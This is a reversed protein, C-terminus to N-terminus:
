RGGGPAPPAAGGPKDEKVEFRRGDVFLMRVKTGEKFIDGASLVLNAIKGPEISGLQGDVGLFRAPHVTLAKLAEDEALGAQVAKRVQAMLDAGKELGYSTLAFPIGAAKLRAANGPYTEKEATEKAEKGRQAYISLAPPAFNVSLLLPIGAARLADAVRWAENAGAVLGRVGCGAILRLAKKIEEQGDCAFIVPAGDLLYPSLSELFPDYVPRRVGSGRGASLSGATRYRAADLCLQRFFAQVGMGTTPYAGRAGTFEVHLAVPNRVVMEAPSGGNLNVLVSRGSFMRRRPAALVTLVGTKRLAEQEVAGAALHEYAGFEPTRGDAGKVPPATGLFEGPDPKPEPPVQVLGAAFADIFGPYVTLGKGDVIEADGPVRVAPRPGVSEVLGDRVVIVADEIPPGSVPVVRCGVVAYAPEWAAASPAALAAVFALLVFGLRSKM